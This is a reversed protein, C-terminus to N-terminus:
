ASHNDLFDHNEGFQDSDTRQTEYRSGNRRLATRFVGEIESKSRGEQMLMKILEKRISEISHETRNPCYASKLQELKCIWKAVLKDIRPALFQEIPIQVMVVEPLNQGAIRVSGVKSLIGRRRLRSLLQPLHPQETVSPFDRALTSFSFPKLHYREILPWVKWFLTSEADKARACSKQRNYGTSLIHRFRQEYCGNIANLRRTFDDLPIGRVRRNAKWRFAKAADSSLQERSSKSAAARLLLECEIQSARQKTIGLVNAIERHRYGDERLDWVVRERLNKAENRIESSTLESRGSVRLASRVNGAAGRQDIAARIPRRPRFHARTTAFGRGPNTNEFASDGTHDLERNAMLRDESYAYSKRLVCIVEGFNPAFDIGVAALLGLMSLVAPGLNAQNVPFRLSGSAEIIHQFVSAPFL